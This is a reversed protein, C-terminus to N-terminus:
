AQPEIEGPRWTKDMWPELPGYLRLITFWSKGPITQLWNNEKGKPAEPAFFVDFSGDVNQEFRITAQDSGYGSVGYNAVRCGVLRSLQNSWAEKDTPM